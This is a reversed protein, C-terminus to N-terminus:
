DRRKTSRRRPPHPSSIKRKTSGHRKKTTSRKRPPPSGKRSPKTIQRKLAAIIGGKSQTRLAHLHSQLISLEKRHAEERARAEAQLQQMSQSMQQMLDMFNTAPDPASLGCIQTGFEMARKASDETSDEAPDEAFDEAPDEAPDEEPLDEAPGEVKVDDLDVSATMPQPGFRAWVSAAAYDLLTPATPAYADLSHLSSVPPATPAHM